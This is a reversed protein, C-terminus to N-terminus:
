VCICYKSQMQCFVHTSPHTYVWLFLCVCMMMGDKSSVSIFLCLCVFLCAASECLPQWLFLLGYLLESEREQERAREPSLLFLCLSPNLSLSHFFTYPHTGVSLLLCFLFVFCWFLDSHIIVIGRWLPISRSSPPFFCPSLRVYFRFLSFSHPSPHSRSLCHQWVKWVNIVKFLYRCKPVYLVCVYM